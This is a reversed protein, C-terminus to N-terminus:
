FGVEQLNPLAVEIPVVDEGCASLGSHFESRDFLVRAIAVSQLRQSNGDVEQSGLAERLHIANGNEHIDLIRDIRAGVIGRQIDGSEEGSDPNSAGKAERSLLASGERCTSSRIHDVGKKGM